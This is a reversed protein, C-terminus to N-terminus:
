ESSLSSSTFSCGLYCALSSSSFFLFSRSSLCFSCAVLSLAMFAWCFISYKFFNASFRRCSFFRSFCLFISYFALYDLYICFFSPPSFLSFLSFFTFLPFPSYLWFTCFDLPSLTLFLLVIYLLLTAAIDSSSM